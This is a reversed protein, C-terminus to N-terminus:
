VGFYNDLVEACFICIFKSLYKDDIRNSENEHIWLQQRYVEATVLLMKYKRPSLSSLESESNVLNEIHSLNRKVYQLQKAIAETREKRSPRRKKAVKLYDKRAKKKYTRPKPETAFFRLPVTTYNLKM